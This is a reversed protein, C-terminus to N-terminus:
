HFQRPIKKWNTVLIRCKFQSQFDRTPATLSVPSVPIISLLIWTRNDGYLDIITLMSGIYLDKHSCFLHFGTVVSRPNKFKWDFTSLVVVLITNLFSDYYCKSATGHNKM